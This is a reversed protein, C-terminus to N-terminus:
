ETNNPVLSRAFEERLALVQRCLDKHSGHLIRTESEKERRQLELEGSRFYRQGMTLRIPFGVLDADNFKVGPRLPRDDWFVDCGSDLLSHYLEAAEQMESETKTISLLLVEYPAVSLPWCIGQEDHCQEIITALTRNVGIGYCGM